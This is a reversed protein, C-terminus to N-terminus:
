SGTNYAFVSLKAQFSASSHVIILFNLMEADVTYNSMALLPIKDSMCTHDCKTLIAFSSTNYASILQIERHPRAPGEM